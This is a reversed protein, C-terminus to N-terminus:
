ISLKDGIKIFGPELNVANMGFYIKNGKKKYTSLTKLPEVLKKATKQDITTMICRACPKIMRFKLQNIQFQDVNEEGDAVSDTLVINPRFRDMPVPVVLRKNLDALTEESIILYPYGDAMSMATKTPAKSLSKERLSDHDMKVLSVESKLVESFWESYSNDMKKATFEHEWVSVQQESHLESNYHIFLKENPKDKQYFTFGDEEQTVGILAMQPIQRQTLFRGDGNILMMRRGYQLGKEECFSEQVNVGGLSKIPYIIIEKVRM